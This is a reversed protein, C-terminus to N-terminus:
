REAAVRKLERMVAAQLPADMQMQLPRGGSLAHAVIVKAASDATIRGAAYAELTGRISDPLRSDDSAAPMSPSFVMITDVSITDVSITDVSTRSKEGRGCAALLFATALVLYTGSM